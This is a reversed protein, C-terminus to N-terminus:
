HGAEEARYLSHCGNCGKSVEAAQAAFGVTNGARALEALRASSDGFANARAQFDAKNAWVSPLARSNPGESGDPFLGAISHGFHDLGEAAHVQRKVDSGNRVAQMVSEFMLTAAMHMMAHRAAILEAATARDRDPGEDFFPTEDRAITACGVLLPILLLPLRRM